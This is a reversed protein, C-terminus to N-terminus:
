SSADSAMIPAYVTARSPLAIVNAMSWFLFVSYSAAPFSERNIVRDSAAPSERVSMSLVDARDQVRQHCLFLARCRPLAPHQRGQPLRAARGLVPFLRGANGEPAARRGHGRVPQAARHRGRRGPLLDRAEVPAGRPIHALARSLDKTQDFTVPTNLPVYVQLGKSGSTKAFSKLKMAGLLDRLWLGVQCCKIVNAPPGPDLDFMLLTPVEPAAALALPTHLELDALQGLWVLTPLDDAVVYDIKGVRATRVWDPRHSPANKEYFPAALAGTCVDVHMTAAIKVREHIEGDPFDQNPCIARDNVLSRGSIVEAGNGIPIQPNAFGGFAGTHGARLETVQSAGGSVPDQHCERCSPANYLPGLGEAITEVSDFAALDALHTVDDVM